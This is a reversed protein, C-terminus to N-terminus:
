RNLEFRLVKWGNKGAIEALERDPNVAVPYAVEGFLPMDSVSDSYFSCESLTHGKDRLYRNALEIKGAGYCNPKEFDKLRGDEIRRRNSILDDVGLYSRFREAILAEQGSIIVTRIKRAKHADIIQAAEPYISLKGKEEFYRDIMGSYTEYDLGLTRIRYYRNIKKADLIGRNMYRLNRLAVALELLARPDRKLRWELWLTNTNKHVLTDDLDFFAIPVDPISLDM